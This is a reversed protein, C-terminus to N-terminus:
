GPRSMMGEGQFLLSPLVLGLLVVQVPIQPPSNSHPTGWIFAPSTVLLLPSMISLYCVCCLAVINDSTNCLFFIMHAWSSILMKRIRFELISGKVCYYFGTSNGSMTSWLKVGMKAYIHFCGELTHKTFWGGTFALLKSGYVVTVPTSDRYLPWM